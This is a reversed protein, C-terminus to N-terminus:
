HIGRKKKKGASKSKYLTQKGRWGGGKKRKYVGILFQVLTSKKPSFVGNEKKKEGGGPRFQGGSNAGIEKQKTQKKAL